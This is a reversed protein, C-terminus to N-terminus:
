KDADEGEDGDRAEAYAERAERLVLVALVLAAVYEAWWWGLVVSAGVGLLTALALYACALSEVADARLAASNLKGAVVRKRWGLAPMVVVALATVFLGPWSNQPEFRLVLGVMSSVVLYSALFLLLVAALWAARQEVRKVRELDETRGEATLRWLLVGASLLEIVSDLGFGTLLASRAVVGVGIAVAAEFVMWLISVTELAIGERLAGRPAIRTNM